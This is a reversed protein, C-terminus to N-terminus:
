CKYEHCKDSARIWILKCFNKSTEILLDEYQKVLDPALFILRFVCDGDYIYFVGNAKGDAMLVLTIYGLFFVTNNESFLYFWKM